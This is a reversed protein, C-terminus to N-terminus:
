GELVASNKKARVFNIIVFILAIENFLAALVISAVSGAHEVTSEANLSHKKARSALVLNVIAAALLIVGFTIYFVGIVVVAAGAVVEADESHLVISENGDYLVIGNEDFEIRAGDDILIDGNYGIAAEETEEYSLVAGGITAVVGCLMIIIALVLSVIGYVRYAVGEHRLGTSLTAITKEKTNM